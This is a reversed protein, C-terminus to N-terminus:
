IVALVVVAVRLPKLQAAVVVVVLLSLINLMVVM